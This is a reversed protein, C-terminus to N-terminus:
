LYELPINPILIKKKVIIKIGERVKKLDNKMLVGDSIRINFACYSHYNSGRRTPTENNM